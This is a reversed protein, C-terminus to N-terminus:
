ARFSRILQLQLAVTAAQRTASSALPIPATEVLTQIVAARFQRVLGGVVAQKRGIRALRIVRTLPTVLAHAKPVSERRLLCLGEEFAGSTAM